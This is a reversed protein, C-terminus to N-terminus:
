RLQVDPFAPPYTINTWHEGFLVRAQGQKLEDSIRYKQQKIEFKNQGFLKVECVRRLPGPMLSKVRM